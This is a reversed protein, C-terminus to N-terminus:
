PFSPLGSAYGARPHGLSIERPDDNGRSGSQERHVAETSVDRTVRIGSGPARSSACIDDDTYPRNREGCVGKGDYQDPCHGHGDDPWTGTRRWHPDDQSGERCGRIRLVDPWDGTDLWTM